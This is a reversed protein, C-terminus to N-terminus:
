KKDRRKEIKNEEKYFIILAIGIIAPVLSPIIANTKSYIGIGLIIGAIGLLASEKTM